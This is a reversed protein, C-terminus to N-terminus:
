TRIYISVLFKICLHLFKYMCGHASLCVAYLCVPLCACMGCYKHNHTGIACKLLSYGDCSYAYKGDSTCIVESWQGVNRM